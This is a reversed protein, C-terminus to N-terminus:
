LNLDQGVSLTEMEEKTFPDGALFKPFFYQDYPPLGYHRNFQRKVGSRISPHLGSFLAQRDEAPNELLYALVSTVVEAEKVRALSVAKRHEHIARLLDQTQNTM